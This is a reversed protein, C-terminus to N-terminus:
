NSPGFLHFGRSNGFIKRLTGPPISFHDEVAEMPVFGDEDALYALASVVTSYGDPDDSTSTEALTADLWKLLRSM